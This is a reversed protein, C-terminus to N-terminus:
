PGPVPVPRVLQHCGSCTSLLEGYLTARQNHDSTSTARVALERVKAALAPVDGRAVGGAAAVTDLQTTSLVEAGQKWMEDSPGVLGEWLRVAAWQHRRMQVALVSSQEPAPEWPFTVVAAQREHCQSCTRGLRAALVSAAPLDRAEVVQQAAAKMDDVFMPWGERAPLEHEILWRAQRQAEDLKGTAIAHQLEVIVTFHETMHEAVVSADAAVKAPAVPPTPPPAPPPPPKPDSCGAIALLVTTALRPSM